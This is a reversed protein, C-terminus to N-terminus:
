KGLVAFTLLFNKGLAVELKQRLVSLKTPERKSGDKRIEEALDL